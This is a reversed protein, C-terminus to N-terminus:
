GLVTATRFPNACSFSFEWNRHWRRWDQGSKWEWEWNWQWDTGNGTGTCPCNMQDLLHFLKTLVGGQGFVKDALYFCCVVRFLLPSWFFTLLSPLCPLPLALTLSHLFGASRLCRQLQDFWSLGRFLLMKWPSFFVKEWCLWQWPWQRLFKCIILRM